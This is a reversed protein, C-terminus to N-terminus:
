SPILKSKQAAHSRQAREALVQQLGPTLVGGSTTYRVVGRILAERMLETRTQVGLKRMIHQRHTHVTATSLGLRIAAEQDDTGAGLVAFVQLETPTFIHALSASKSAVIPRPEPTFYRDGRAVNQMVEVLRTPAEIAANFFGDISVEKLGLRTVEDRRGSVVLVRQCRRERLVQAVLDLGDGDPFTLGFIGLAVSQKQLFSLATLMSHCESVATDPFAQRVAQAVGYCNLQDWKAVLMRPREPNGSQLSRKQVHMPAHYHEAM